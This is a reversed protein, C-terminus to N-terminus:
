ILNKRWFLAINLVIAVGQLLIVHGDNYFYINKNMPDICYLNMDHVIERIQRRPKGTNRTLINESLRYGCTQWLRNELAKNSASLRRLDDGSITFLLGPSTATISALRPCKLVWAIEGFVTGM